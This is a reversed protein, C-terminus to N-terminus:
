APKHGALAVDISAVVCSKEHREQHHREHDRRTNQDPHEGTVSQSPLALRPAREAGCFENCCRTAPVRQLFENITIPKQERVYHQGPRHMRPL